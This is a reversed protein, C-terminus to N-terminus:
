EARLVHCTNCQSYTSNYTGTKKDENEFHTTPLQTASKMLSKGETNTGHCGWCGDAGLKDYRGSHNVPMTPPAGNPTSATSSSSNSSNSSGSNSGQSCGAVMCAMLVCLLACAIMCLKRVNFYTSCINTSAIECSTNSECVGCGVSEGCNECGVGARLLEAEANASGNNDKGRKGCVDFNRVTM